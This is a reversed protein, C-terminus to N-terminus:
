LYKFIRIFKLSAERLLYNIKDVHLMSLMSISMCFNLSKFGQSLVLTFCLKSILICGSAIKGGGKVLMQQTKFVDAKHHDGHLVWKLCIFIANM